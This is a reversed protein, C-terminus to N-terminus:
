PCDIYCGDAVGLGVDDGGSPWIALDSDGVLETISPCPHQTDDNPVGAPGICFDTDAVSYIAHGVHIDIQDLTKSAHEIPLWWGCCWAFEDLYNGYEDDRFFDEYNEGATCDYKRFASFQTTYKTSTSIFGPYPNGWAGRVNDGKEFAQIEWDPLRRLANHLTILGASGAGIIALRKPM